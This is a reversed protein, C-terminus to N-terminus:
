RVVPAHAPIHDPGGESGGAPGGHHVGRGEAVPLPGQGGAGNRDLGAALNDYHDRFLGRVIGWTRPVLAALLIWLPLTPISIIFEILRQILIDVWGGAYGSIGGLVVGLVLSILMGVMGVSLSMRIAHALRSWIDRGLGTPGWRTSVAQRGGYRHGDPPHGDQVAVAAQVGARPPLLQGPVEYGQGSYAGPRFTDPNRVTELDYVYPSFKWLGNIRQPGVLSDKGHTIKPDHISLFNPFIAILFFISLLGAAVLALRHRRFRWWILKWQPAIYIEEEELQRATAISEAAM